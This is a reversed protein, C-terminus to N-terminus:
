PIGAPSSPRPPPRAAAPMPTCSCSRNRTSPGTSPWCRRTAASSARMPRAPYSATSRVAALPTDGAQITITLGDAKKQVPFLRIPTSEYVVPVCWDQLPLPDYAISRNPNDHLQKRGMTVAAGLTRGRVLEAYLDAVFQAATVVYVNYRMAVVGAVGAEMVEQALTGFTRVREHLDDAAQAPQPQPAGTPPSPSTKSRPTPVAAPTSFSCLCMPRLWCTESGPAMSPRLTKRSRPTRSFSFATSAPVRASFIVPFLKQLIQAVHGAVTLDAYIGHGDFHVVHYPKREAKARRLVRGLQDFTAPAPRRAPLDGPDAREAGQDVSQSRFSVTRRGRCSAPLDGPPHPDARVEDQASPSSPPKLTPVSSRRPRLALPTDTKPDRILDWPIATAGEVSTVVEVHTDDLKERLKAWLDRADDSSHFVKTFLDKGIEGM